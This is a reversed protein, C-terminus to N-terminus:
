SSAVITTVAAVIKPWRSTRSPYFTCAVTPGGPCCQTVTQYATRRLSASSLQSLSSHPCASAQCRNLRELCSNVLANRRVRQGNSDIVCKWEFCRTTSTSAKIFLSVVSSDQSSWCRVQSLQSLGSYDASMQTVFTMTSCVSPCQYRNYSM